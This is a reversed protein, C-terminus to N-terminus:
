ILGFVQLQELLSAKDIPKVMYATAGSKLSKFVLKPDEIATTMIIKVEDSPNIGTKQERRRIYKVAETGNVNPMMIDMCILHYPKNKHLANKFAEAGEKGDVAIDCEGYPTLMRSLIKRSLFDDEVILTRM